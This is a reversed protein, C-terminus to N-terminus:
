SLNERVAGFLAFSIPQLLLLLLWWWSYKWAAILIFPTAVVSAGMFLTVLVIVWMALAIKLYYLM